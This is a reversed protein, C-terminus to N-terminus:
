KSRIWSASRSALCLVFNWVYINLEHCKSYFAFTLVKRFNLYLLFDAESACIRDRRAGRRQTYLFKDYRTTLASSFFHLFHTASPIKPPYLLHCRLCPASPACQFFLTPTAFTFSFMALSSCFRLLSSCNLLVNRTERPGLGLRLVESLGITLTHSLIQM